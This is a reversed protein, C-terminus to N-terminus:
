NLLKRKVLYFNQKGLISSRWFLHHGKFFDLDNFWLTSCITLYSENKFLIASLHLFDNSLNQWTSLGIEQFRRNVDAIDGLNSANRRRQPIKKITFDSEFTKVIWRIALVSPNNRGFTKHLMAVIPKSLLDIIIIIYM